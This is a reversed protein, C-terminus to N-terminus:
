PSPQAGLAKVRKQYDAARERDGLQGYATALNQLLVADDPQYTLLEKWLAIAEAQRNRTALWYALEYAARVGDVTWPRQAIAQRYLPEAKEPHGLHDAELDAQFAAAWADTKVGHSYDALWRLSDQYRGEQEAVVARIAYAHYRDPAIGSAAAALEDAQRYERRAVLNKALEIMVDFGKPFTHLSRTFVEMPDNWAYSWNAAEFVAATRSGILLVAAALALTRAMGTRSFPRLDRLVATLAVAAGISALALYYDGYPGNRFGLANSTPAFGLLFWLIGLAVLPHRRRWYLALGAVLVVILWDAALIAVPVQGWYFSGIIAMQNFPWLWIGAHVMTFYGSAMAAQGPSVMSFSGLVHQTSGLWHRLALYAAFVLGYLLYNRWTALRRLRAPHLYWDMVGFLAVVSVAGEYSVLALFLCLAALLSWPVRTKGAAPLPATGAAEFAGASDHCLLATAALGVMVLINTCSLWATCSVMTPSLLWVAMAVLGWARSSFLRHCLELVAWACALGVILPVVRVLAMGGQANLWDYAAFLLNKVPRFFHYFDPELLSLWSPCRRVLYLEGQDDLPFFPARLSCAGIAVYALLVAAFLLAYRPGAPKAETAPPSVGKHEHGGSEAERTLGLLFKVLRQRHSSKNQNNM